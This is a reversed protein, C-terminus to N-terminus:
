KKKSKLKPALSSTSTKQAVPPAAGSITKQCVLEETHYDILQFTAPRTFYLVREKITDCEGTILDIKTLEGRSVKKPPESGASKNQSQYFLVYREKDTKIKGKITIYYGDTGDTSWKGTIELGRSSFDGPLKEPTKDNNAAITNKSSAENKPVLMSTTGAVSNKSTAIFYCLAALVVIFALEMWAITKLVTVKTQPYDQLIAGVKTNKMPQSGNKNTALEALPLTKGSTKANLSGPLPTIAETRLQANM